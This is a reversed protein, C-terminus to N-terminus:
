KVPPPFLLKFFLAKSLSCTESRADIKAEERCPLCPLGAAAAAGDRRGCLVGPGPGSGFPVAQVPDGLIQELVAWCVPWGLESSDQGPQPEAASM